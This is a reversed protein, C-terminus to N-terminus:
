YQLILPKLVELPVRIVSFTRVEGEGSLQVTELDSSGCGGCAMRPPCTYGGCRNCRLEIFKGELLGGRYQNFTLPYKM